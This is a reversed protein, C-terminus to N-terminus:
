ITNGHLAFIVFKVLNQIKSDATGVEM